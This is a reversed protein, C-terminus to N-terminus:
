KNFPFIYLLVEIHSIFCLHFLICMIFYYFCKYGAYPDSDKINLSHASIFSFICFSWYKYSVLIHLFLEGFYICMCFCNLKNYTFPVWIFVLLGNRHWIHLYYIHYKGWTWMCGLLIKFSLVKWSFAVPIYLILWLM